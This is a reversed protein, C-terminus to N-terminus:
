DRQPFQPCQLQGCTSRKEASPAVAGQPQTCCSRNHTMAERYRIYKMNWFCFVCSFRWSKKKQGLPLCAWGSHFVALIGTPSEPQLKCSSYFVFPGWQNWDRSGRISKMRWFSAEFHIFKITRFKPVKEAKGLWNWNQWTVHWPQLFSSWLMFAFHVLIGETPSYKTSCKWTLLVEFCHFSAFLTLNTAVVGQQACRELILNSQSHFFSQHTPHWTCHYPRYHYLSVLHYRQKIWFLNLIQSAQM